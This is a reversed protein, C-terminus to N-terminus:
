GFNHSYLLDSIRASSILHGRCCEKDVGLANLIDGFSLINGTIDLNRVSLEIKADNITREKKLQALYQYLPDLSSLDKGCRPCLIFGIGSM